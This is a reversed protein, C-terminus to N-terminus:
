ATPCLWGCFLNKEVPDCLFPPVSPLSITLGDEGITKFRWNLFPDVMFGMGETDNRRCVGCYTSFSVGHTPSPSPM